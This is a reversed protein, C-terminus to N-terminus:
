LKVIGGRVALDKRPNRIIDVGDALRQILAKGLDDGGNGGDDTDKCHHQANVHEHRHRCNKRHRHRKSEDARDELCRLLEEPCLLDREAFHIPMHFFHVAPVGNDLGEVLLSITSSIMRYVMEM